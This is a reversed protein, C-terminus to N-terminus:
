KVFDMQIRDAEQINDGLKVMLETLNLRETTDSEKCGWLDCCALGGVGTM